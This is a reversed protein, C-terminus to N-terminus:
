HGRLDLNLIESIFKGSNPSGWRYVIYHNKEKEFNKFYKDTNISDCVIKESKQEEIKIENSYLKYYHEIDTKDLDTSILIAGFYQMGNGSGVLKGSVSVADSIETNVPLPYSKLEKKINSSITNNAIVIAFYLIFPLLIIAPIIIKSFKKFM